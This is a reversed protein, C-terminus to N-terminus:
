INLSLGHPTKNDILMTTETLLNKVLSIVEDKALLAAFLKLKLANM